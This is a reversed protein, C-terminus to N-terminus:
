KSRTRPSSAPAQAETQTTIQLVAMQGDTHLHGYYAHINLLKYPEDLKIRRELTALDRAQLQNVILDREKDTNPDVLHTLQANHRIFAVGIDRSAAGIWLLRDDKVHAQRNQWHISQVSLEKGEQFTAAWFRVHHRSGPRAGQIHSQFGLDQARGFLYLHSMPASDYRWGYVTSLLLRIASRITIRDAEHWGAAQMAQIVQQRTGILAINLPDSAFGDATVCYLPLHKPPFLIRVGRIIAPVLVYAGLLYTVIIAAAVPLHQNLWPFINFISVYAIVLGPVLVAFRKAFRVLPSLM